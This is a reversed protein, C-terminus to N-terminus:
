KTEPPNPPRQFNGFYSALHSKAMDKIPGGVASWLATAALGTLRSTWSKKLPREGGRPMLLKVVIFGAVAATVILAVKHREVSHRVMERPNWETRVRTLERGLANRSDDLALAAARKLAQRELTGAM